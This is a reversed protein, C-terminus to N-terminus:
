IEAPVQLQLFLESFNWLVSHLLWISLKLRCYFIFFFKGTRGSCPMLLCYRMFLEQHESLICCIFGYNIFAIYNMLAIFLGAGVGSLLYYRIFKTRGWVIELEGAFMWLGLLNFFIHMWGGHLFMYTFPQWIMFNNIFGDHSIGFIYEM